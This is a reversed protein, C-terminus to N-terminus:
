SCPTRRVVIHAGVAALGGGSYPTSALLNAPVFGGSPGGILLAKITAGKAPGGAAAAIEALPTGTPVEMVGANTLSGSIQVLATGPEAPDGIQKFAAAGNSIIWTLRPSRQWM